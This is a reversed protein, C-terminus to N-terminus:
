PGSAPGSKPKGPEPCQQHIRQWPKQRQAEGRGNSEGGLLYGLLDHTSEDLPELQTIEFNEELVLETIKRFFSRSSFFNGM